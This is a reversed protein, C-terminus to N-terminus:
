SAQEWQQEGGQCRVDASDNVCLNIARYFCGVLVKGESSTLYNSRLSEFYSIANIMVREDVAMLM